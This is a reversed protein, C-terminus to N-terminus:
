LQATNEKTKKTGLHGSLLSDHMQYLVENKLVRPLILQRYEDTENVKKYVKWLVDDQIYLNEWIIWYHRTAPSQISMEEKSPKSGKFKSKWIPSIDPDEKQLSSIEARSRVFLWSSLEKQKELASSTGAVPKNSDRAVQVKLSLNSSLETGYLDQKKQIHKDSIALIM